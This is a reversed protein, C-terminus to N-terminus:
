HHSSNLCIIFNRQDLVVGESVTLDVQRDIILTVDWLNKEKSPFLKVTAIFYEFELKAQKLVLRWGGEWFRLTTPKVVKTVVKRQTWHAESSKDVDNNVHEEEHVTTQGQEAAALALRSRAPAKQPRNRQQHAQLVDYGRTEQM